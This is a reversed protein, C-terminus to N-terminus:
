SRTTNMSQLAFHHEGEYDTHKSQLLLGLKETFEPDSKEPISNPSEPLSFLLSMTVSFNEHVLGYPHKDGYLIKSVGNYVSVLLNEVQDITPNSPSDISVVIEEPVLNRLAQLFPKIESDANIIVM